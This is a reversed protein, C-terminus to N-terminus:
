TLLQVSTSLLMAYTERHGLSETVMKAHPPPALAGSKCLMQMSLLAGLLKAICPIPLQMEVLHQLYEESM